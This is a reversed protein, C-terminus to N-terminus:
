AEGPERRIIVGYAFDNKQFGPMMEQRADDGPNNAIPHM